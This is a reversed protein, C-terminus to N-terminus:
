SSFQNMEGKIDKKIENILMFIGTQAEDFDKSDMWDQIQELLENRETETNQTNDM